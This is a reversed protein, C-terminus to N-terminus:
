LLDQLTLMLILIRQRLMNLLKRGTNADLILSAHTQHQSLQRGQHMALWCQEWAECGALTHWGAWEWCPGKSACCWHKAAAEYHDQWPQAKDFGVYSNPLWCFKWCDYVAQELQLQLMGAHSTNHAPYITAMWCVRVYRAWSSSLLKNNNNSHNNVHHNNDDLMSTLMSTIEAPPGRQWECQKHM